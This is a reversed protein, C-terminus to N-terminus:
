ATRVWMYTTIYPQLNNHAVGSGTLGSNSTSISNTTMAPVTHTHAGSSSISLAPINIDIIQDFPPGVPAAGSGVQRSNNTWGITTGSVSLASSVSKATTTHTHNGSSSISTASTTHTHAITHNHSPLQVNTLAVTSEGGTKSAVNFNTDDEDLGVLTKGKAFREWIGGFLNSPNASNISIYVSGIPYITNWINALDTNIACVQNQLNVAITEDLASAVIGLYEDLAAQYQTFISSTDITQITQQVAGCKNTDLRTDTIRSASISTTNKPIYIEALCLEYISSTRTLESATPSSAAVGQLVYLDISRVSVNLNLRLVVRDIRDYANDSAQVMLTRETDEECFYGNINGAGAKVVVSMNNDSPIVQFSTSPNTFIGNTFYRKFLAALQSSDAARDYIPYGEENYGSIQSDFPLSRM